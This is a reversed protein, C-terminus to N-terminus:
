NDCSADGGLHLNFVGRVDEILISETEGNQCVNAANFEKATAANGMYILFTLQVDKLEVIGNGDVDGKIFIECGEPLVLSFNCNSFNHSIIDDFRGLPECDGPKGDFGGNMDPVDIFAFLTYSGDPVSMSFAHQTDGELWDSSIGTPTNTNSIADVFLIGSENGTYTITGSITFKYPESATFLFGASNTYPPNSISQTTITEGIVVINTYIGSKQIAGATSIAQHTQTVAHLSPTIFFCFLLATIFSRTRM